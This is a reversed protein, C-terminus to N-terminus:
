GKKKPGRLSKQPIIFRRRIILERTQRGFKRALDLNRLFLDVTNKTKPATTDQVEFGIFITDGFKIDYEKMLGPSIAAFRLQELQYPKITKGSATQFPTGDTIHPSPSYATVTVSVIIFPSPRDSSIPECSALLLCGTILLITRLM